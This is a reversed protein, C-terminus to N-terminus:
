TDCTRKRKLRTSRLEVGTLRDMVNVKEFIKRLMHSRGLYDLSRLCPGQRGTGSLPPWTDLRTILFCHFLWSDIPMLSDFLWTQKGADCFINCLFLGISRRVRCPTTTKAWGDKSVGTFLFVLAAFLRFTCKKKCSSFMFYGIGMAKLWRGPVFKFCAAYVYFLFNNGGQIDCRAKSCSFVGM